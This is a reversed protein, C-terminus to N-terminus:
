SPILLRGLIRVINYETRGLEGRRGGPLQLLEDQEELYVRLINSDVGDIDPVIRIFGSPQGATDALCEADLYSMLSVDAVLVM